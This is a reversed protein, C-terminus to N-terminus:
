GDIVLSLLRSSCCARFISAFVISTTIQTVFEFANEMLGGRCGNEAGGPRLRDAGAGVPAGTERDPDRQHGGHGGRCLVGLLQRVQGPEQCGHRRGDPALGRVGAPVRLWRVHVGARPEERRLDNIRSDAFTSRFEDPGM